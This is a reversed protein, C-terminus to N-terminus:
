RSGLRPRTSTHEPLLRMGGCVPWVIILAGKDKALKKIAAQSPAGCTSTEVAYGLALLAM